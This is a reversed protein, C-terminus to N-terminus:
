IQSRGRRPDWRGPAITTNRTRTSSAYRNKKQAQLDPNPNRMFSLSLRYKKAIDQSSLGNEFDAKIWKQLIPDTCRSSQRVRDTGYYRRIITSVEQSYLNCRKAIEVVREGKQYSNIIQATLKDM